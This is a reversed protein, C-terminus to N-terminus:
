FPFEPDYPLGIKLKQPGVGHSCCKCEKGCPLLPGEEVAKDVGALQQTKVAAVPTGTLQSSATGVFASVRWGMGAHHGGVHGETGGAASVKSHENGMGVWLGLRRM